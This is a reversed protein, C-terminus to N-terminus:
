VRQSYTDNDGEVSQSLIDSTTSSTSANNQTESPNQTENVSTSDNNARNRHLTLEYIADNEQKLTFLYYMFVKHDLYHQNLLEDLTPVSVTSLKLPTEM